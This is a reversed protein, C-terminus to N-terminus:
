HWSWHDTPEIKPERGFKVELPHLGEKIPPLKSHEMSQAKEKINKEV